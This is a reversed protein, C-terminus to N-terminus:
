LNELLWLALHRSRFKILIIKHNYGFGKRERVGKLHSFRHGEVEGRVIHLLKKKEFYLM